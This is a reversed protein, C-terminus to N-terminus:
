DFDAYIEGFKIGAVVSQKYRGRLSNKAEQFEESTMGNKIAMYAEIFAALHDAAEILGGDRPSFEDRNYSRSIEESSVREVVGNLTVIDSFENETYMRM